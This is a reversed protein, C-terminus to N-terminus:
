FKIIYNVFLHQDTNAGSTSTSQSNTTVGGEGTNTLFATVGGTVSSTQPAGTGPTESSTGPSAADTSGGLAIARSYTATDAAINLNTGGATATWTNVGTTLRRASWTGPTGNSLHLLAYGTDSLPHSHSNVTHAHSNVTHTHTGIDHAHSPVTHQHNPTTHTHSISHTHSMSRSAYVVGDSGGLTDGSGKGVPSRRLLDPVNFSAGSGGYTYGIVGYLAAYTGTTSQSSGDCLLWGTPASAGAFASIQGIPISVNQLLVEFVSGTYAMITPINQQLVGAAIASGGIRLDKAGLGSINITAAGTNTVHPIIVVLGSTTYADWAPTPSALYTTSTGTTLGAYNRTILGDLADGVDNFKVSTTRINYNDAYTM